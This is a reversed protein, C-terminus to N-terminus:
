PFPEFEEFVFHLTCLNITLKSDNTPHFFSSSPLWTSLMPTYSYMKGQQSYTVLLNLVKIIIKTAIYMLAVSYRSGLIPMLWPQLMRLTRHKFQSSSRCATQQIGFLLHFGIKADLLVFRIDRRVNDFNPFLDAM